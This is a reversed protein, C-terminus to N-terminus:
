CLIDNTRKKSNLKAGYIMLFIFSVTMWLKDWEIAFKSALVYVGHM